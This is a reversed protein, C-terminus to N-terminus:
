EVLAINNDQTCGVIQHITKDFWISRNKALIKFSFVGLTVSVEDCIYAELYDILVKASNGRYSSWMNTCTGIHDPISASSYEEFASIHM